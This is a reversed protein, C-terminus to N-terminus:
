KGGHGNDHLGDGGVFLNDFHTKLAQAYAATTRQFLARLRDQEEVMSQFREILSGVDFHEVDLCYQGHGVTRMLDDIKPLYSLAIVPKGLMHSFVVGHFKTTVVYDFTSMQLLLERLTLLPRFTVASVDSSARPLLRKKLDEIAYVDGVVDSSFIELHYHQELLWLSFAEVKDLYRSYVAADKRPWRRPDCFGMPNLGVRRTFRDAIKTSLSASLDVGCGLNRLLALGEAASLTESRKSTVYAKIDLGYAPDPCVHTKRRVGLSRVLAQSQVSRLSVYDALRVSWKAFFRNVPRQLLDAGVGVILVPTRALKALVCFKFVNYPLDKWLECLQGGGAMVLLDLSRVLRYSRILHALERIIDHVPKAVIYLIHCKKASATFKSKVGSATNTSSTPAEGGQILGSLLIHNLTM